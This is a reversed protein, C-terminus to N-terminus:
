SSKKKVVLLYFGNWWANLDEQDNLIIKSYLVDLGAAKIGADTGEVVGDWNADDMLIFAEDAFTASFYKIANMTNAFDHPGDYFFFDVPEIEDRNVSKMDSEYVIVKNGGKYRKVNTIFDDKNNPPMEFIENAPQYTDQWTDVCIVELRNNKLAACATAGLASGIELYRTSHSALKNILSEMKWSTLGIVDIEVDDISSALVADVAQQVKPSIKQQQKKSVIKDCYQCEWCDFKCNKIKDRWVNIPKEVLNTDEIYDEFDNFLIEEGAIYKEVINLTENLRDISERGHMKFVDVGLDLFEEWDARWPPLNATKLPVASDEHDWKPCSVRSIADAFYQPRNKDRTNNFHYHEDMMPCAGLCGENALLSIAVDRGLNEKVWEKATKLRLLADRDRMLDRDICIYDFGAKAHAVFEAPTRVNRLITNKIYLDPYRAQIQGTALWHTHPLIVSRVGIDYLQQFHELWIDLNRQTPDVNTNNFTACVTIGTESQIYLAAEIASVVDDQAVLVDGMADQNFPPIRSTFYVDFIYDKNKKCFELFNFFQQETLKPNLPLSFLKQNKNLTQYDTM